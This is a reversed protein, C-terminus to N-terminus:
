PDSYIVGCVKKRFNAKIEQEAPPHEEESEAGDGDDKDEQPADAETQMKKRNAAKKWKKLLRSRRKWKERRGGRRRRSKTLQKLCKLPKTQKISIVQLCRPGSVSGIQGESESLDPNLLLNTDKFHKQHPYLRKPAVVAAPLNHHTNQSCPHGRPYISPPITGQTYAWYFHTADIYSESHYANNQSSEPLAYGPSSAFAAPHLHTQTQDQPYPHQYTDKADKDMHKSGEKGSQPGDQCTLGERSRDRSPSHEFTQRQRSDINYFRHRSLSSSMSRSTSRSSSSSFSSSSSRRSSRQSSRQSREQKKRSDVSVDKHKKGYLREQTRNTLKSMEEVELSLGLTKLINQLQENQQDVKSKEAVEEEEKVTPPSRSRSTCGFCIARIDIKKEANDPLQDSLCRERQNTRREENNTQSNGQLSDGSNSQQSECRFSLDSRKEMTTPPVSLLQVGVSLDESDDNVIRSLLDM